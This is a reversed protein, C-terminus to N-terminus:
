CRNLDSLFVILDLYPLNFLFTMDLAEANSLYQSINKRKQISTKAIKLNFSLM